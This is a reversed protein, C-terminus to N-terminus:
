QQNSIIRVCKSGDLASYSIQAQFPFHTIQTLDLDEMKVLEKLAKLRYEFTIETEETVNGLERVMMTKDESLNVPDENRFELGKHLKVKTVVQTAIVPLQLINAFNQTLSLPDVREVTGGTLEALTSLTSINCEEGEISIVSVTIGKSKAYEGLKEYFEDAKKQDDKNRVEDFAGLGVNSLGDTCLVVSSGPAGEGVLAIATALAPGLATPGTEELSM